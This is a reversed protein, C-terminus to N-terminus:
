DDDTEVVIMANANAIVSQIGNKCAPKTTYGQTCALINQNNAAWLNFRFKGGKDTYIQFKPCKVKDSEKVLTLDEIAAKPANNSVSAIGNKCSAMSTYTQSKAIVQYNASWVNFMYGGDNTRKIEYKGKSIAAEVVTTKAPAAKEPAKAPAKAPTKTAPTAKAPTKAPAKAAPTAKAVPATKKAPEAKAPAKAPAAKAPAKAAPTKTEKKTVAM